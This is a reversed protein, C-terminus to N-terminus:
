AKAKKQRLRVFSILFLLIGVVDLIHWVDTRLHIPAVPNFIVAVIIFIWMLGEKSQKYAKFATLIAAGVVVWNMLQYYAYYEIPFIAGGLMVIALLAPWNSQFWKM